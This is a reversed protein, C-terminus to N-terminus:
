NSKSIYGGVMSCKETKKAPVIYDSIVDNVECLNWMQETDIDVMLSGLLQSNHLVNNSLLTSVVTSKIIGNSFLNELTCSLLYDKYLKENKLKIKSSCLHQGILNGWTNIFKSVDSDKQTRFHNAVKKCVEELIGGFEEQSELEKKAPFWDQIYDQQLQSLTSFEFDGLDEIEKVEIRGLKPQENINWNSTDGMFIFSSFNDLKSKYKAWNETYILIHTKNGRALGVKFWFDPMNDWFDVYNGYKSLFKQDLINTGLVEPQHLIMLKIKLEEAGKKMLKIISKPVQIGAEDKSNLSTNSDIVILFDYTEWVM